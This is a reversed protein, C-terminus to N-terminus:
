EQFSHLFGNDTGIKRSEPSSLKAKQFAPELDVSLVIYQVSLKLYHQRKQVKGQLQFSLVSHFIKSPEETGNVM